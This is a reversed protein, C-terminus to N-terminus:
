IMRSTEKMFLVMKGDIYELGMRRTMGTSAKTHTVAILLNLSTRKHAMKGYNISRRLFGSAMERDPATKSSGRIYLGPEGNTNGRATSNIIRM